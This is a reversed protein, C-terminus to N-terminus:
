THTLTTTTISPHRVTTTRRLKPKLPIPYPPPTTSAHNTFFPLSSLIPLPLPIPYLTHPTYELTALLTTYDTLIHYM